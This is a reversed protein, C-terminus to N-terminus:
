FFIHGRAQARGRGRPGQGRLDEKNSREKKKLKGVREMLIEGWYAWCVDEQSWRIAKREGNKEAASKKSPQGSWGKWFSPQVRNKEEGFSRFNGKTVKRHIL